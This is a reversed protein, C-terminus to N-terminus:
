EHGEKEILGSNSHSISARHTAAAAINGLTYSISVDYYGSAGADIPSVRLFEIYDGIAYGAPFSVSVLYEDSYTITPKSFAFCLASLLTFIPLLISKKM